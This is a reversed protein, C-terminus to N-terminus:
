IYSMNTIICVCLFYLSLSLSLSVERFKKRVAKLKTLVNEKTVEEPKHPYDKNFLQSAEEESAPLENRFLKLIDAYKSKVSEWCTGNVLHQIKYDHTVTLLIEAEDNSWVFDKKKRSNKPARKPPM